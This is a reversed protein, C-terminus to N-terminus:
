ERSSSLLQRNIEMFVQLFCSHILKLQLVEMRDIVKGIFIHNGVQSFLYGLKHCWLSPMDVEANLSSRYMAISPFIFFCPTALMDRPSNNSFFEQNKSRFIHYKYRFLISFQELSSLFTYRLLHSSSLSDRAGTANTIKGCLLV